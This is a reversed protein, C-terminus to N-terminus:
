RCARLSEFGWSEPGYIELGHGCAVVPTWVDRFLLTKIGGRDVAFPEWLLRQGEISSSVVSGKAYM